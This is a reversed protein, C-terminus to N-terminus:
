WKHTKQYRRIADQERKRHEKIFALMQFFEVINTEWVKNFPTLTFDSYEKMNSM